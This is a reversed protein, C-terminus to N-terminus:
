EQGRGGDGGYTHANYSDSIDFEASNDATQSLNATNFSNLVGYRGGTSQTNQMTQQLTALEPNRLDYYSSNNLEMNANIMNDVAGLVMDVLGPGNNEAFPGDFIDFVDDFLDYDNEADFEAQALMRRMADRKKLQEYYAEELLGALKKNIGSINEYAKLPDIGKAKLQGLSIQFMKQRCELMFIIDKVQKEINTKKYNVFEGLDYREKLADLLVKNNKEALRFAQMVAKPDRDLFSPAKKLKDYRANELYKEVFSIDLRFDDGLPNWNFEAYAEGLLPNHLNLANFVDFNAVRGDIELKNNSM